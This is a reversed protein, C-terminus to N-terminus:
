QGVESLIYSYGRLFNEYKISLATKTIKSIVKGKKSLTRVEAIEDGAPESTVELNVGIKELAPKLDDVNYLCFQFDAVIYEAKLEKPFIVSDFDLSLGDYFLSAMTTGFENLITMSLQSSDSIVYVDFDFSNDKGFNATMKQLSDVTGNMSTTPLIAYKSTNTVYVPSFESEFRSSACSILLFFPILYLLIKKM